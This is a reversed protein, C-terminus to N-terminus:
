KTIAFPQSIDPYAETKLLEDKRERIINELAYQLTYPSNPNWTDLILAKKLRGKKGAFEYFINYKTEKTIEGIAIQIVTYNTNTQIRRKLIFITNM